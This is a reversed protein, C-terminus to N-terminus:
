YLFGKIKEFLTQIDNKKLNTKTFIDNSRLAGFILMFLGNVTKINLAKCDKLFVTEKPSYILDIAVKTKFLLEKKIPTENENPTMGIPTANIIIDYGIPKIKSIDVININNEINTLNKLIDKAKSISAKRVAVTLNCGSKLSILAVVKGAGGLGLLLANGSLKVDFHSLSKLFGYYDTNYCSLKKNKKVIATNAAKFMKSIEDKKFSKEFIYNKYPMTINFGEYKTNTKLFFDLENKKIPLLSYTGKFNKLKFINNHILPSLSHSIPYGILAFQKTM